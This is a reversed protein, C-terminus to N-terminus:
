ELEGAEANIVKTRSFFFPSFIYTNLKNKGREIKANLAMIETSPRPNLSAQAWDWVVM